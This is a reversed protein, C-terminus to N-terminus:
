SSSMVWDAGTMVGDLYVFAALAGDPTAILWLFNNEGGGAVDHVSPQAVGDPHSHYCGIVAQGQERAARLAAFHDTPSIEFRDSAAALNGAPYLVAAVAEGGARTGLVLGCCEHPAATRAEALIQARLHEPLAVKM